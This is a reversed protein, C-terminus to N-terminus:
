AIGLAKAYSIGRRIEVEGKRVVEGEEDEDRDEERQQGKVKGKGSISVSVSGIKGRNSTVIRDPVDELELEGLVIMDGDDDELEEIREWDDEEDAEAQIVPLLGPTTPTASLSISPSITPSAKPTSTITNANANANTNTNTNINFSPATDPLTLIQPTSIFDFGLSTATTARKERKGKGDLVLGQLDVERRPPGSEDKPLSKALTSTLKVGHSSPLSKPAHPLLAIEARWDSCTSLASKRPVSTGPRSSRPAANPRSPIPRPPIPM